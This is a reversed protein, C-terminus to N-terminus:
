STRKETSTSPFDDPLRLHRAAQEPGGPPQAPIVGLLPCPLADRLAALNDDLRPMPVPLPSPLTNAIWGAFPLGRALIAEATLLAHNICGLRLGVVLLVPLGLAVALDASDGSDDDRAGLPVRFGGVGELILFGDEGVIRCAERLATRIAAFRIPRGAERAAIHPAIPPSFLYCNDVTEPLRPSSAARIAEIDENRGQADTGSAVPKMGAAAHGAQRAAHLLATTAYTKGIGTDTGTLFFAHTM